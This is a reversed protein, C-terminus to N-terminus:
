DSKKVWVIRAAWEIRADAIPPANHSTLTFLNPRSGRMIMKVLVRGDELRVVCERGIVQDMNAAHERYYLTDGNHYAPYMSDGRVIVAVEDGTADLPAPVEDIGQGMANDDIPIVTAGAGVYGVVPVTAGPAGRPLKGTMLWYPDCNLKRAYLTADDLDFGRNGNDHSRYTSVPLNHKM